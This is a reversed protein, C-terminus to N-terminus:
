CADTSASRLDPYGSRGFSGVAALKYRVDGRTVQGPSDSGGTPAEQLLFDPTVADKVSWGTLKVSDGDAGGSAVIMAREEESHSTGECGDNHGCGVLERVTQAEQRRREAVWITTTVTTRRKEPYPRPWRRSRQQSLPPEDGPLPTTRSRPPSRCRAPGTHPRRRTTGHGASTFVAASGRSVRPLVVVGSSGTACSRLLTLKPPASGSPQAPLWWTWGAM